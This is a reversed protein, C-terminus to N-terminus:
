KSKKIVKTLLKSLKLKGSYLFKLKILRQRFVILHVAKKRFYYLIQKNIYRIRTVNIYISM